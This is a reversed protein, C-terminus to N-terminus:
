DLRFGLLATSLEVIKAIALVAPHNDVQGNVKNADPPAAAGAQRSPSRGM